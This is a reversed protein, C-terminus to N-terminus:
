TVKREQIPVGLTSCILPYAKLLMTTTEERDPLPEGLVSFVVAPDLEKTQRRTLGSWKHSLAAKLPAYVTTNKISKAAEKPASRDSPCHQLVKGTMMLFAYERHLTSTNLYIVSYIVSFAM